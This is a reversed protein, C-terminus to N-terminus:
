RVPEFQDGHEGLGSKFGRFRLPSASRSEQAPLPFVSQVAPSTPHCSQTANNVDLRGGTLTKASLAPVPDVNNLLTSKLVKTNLSPCASLTLLAAGSVHPTAMSTGDYYAYQNGIVTSLISVGPAGLHVTNPGYNSFGALNDSSDTAAVAILNSAPYAAPYLPTVDNASSARVRASTASTIDSPNRFPLFTINNPL